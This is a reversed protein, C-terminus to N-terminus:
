LIGWVSGDPGILRHYHDSEIALGGSGDARIEPEPLGAVFLSLCRRGETRAADTLGELAELKALAARLWPPRSPSRRPSTEATAMPPDRPALPAIRRPSSGAEMM